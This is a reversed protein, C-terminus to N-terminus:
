EDEKKNFPKRLIKSLPKHHRNSLFYGGDYIPSEAVLFAKRDLQSVPIADMTQFYIPLHNIYEPDIKKLLDNM